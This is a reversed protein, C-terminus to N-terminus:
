MINKKNYGDEKKMGFGGQTNISLFSLKPKKLGYFITGTVLLM